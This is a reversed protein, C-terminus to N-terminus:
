SHKHPWLCKVLPNCSTWLSTSQGGQYPVYTPLYSITSQATRRQHLEPLVETLGYSSINKGCIQLNQKNQLTKTSYYKKKVWPMHNLTIFQHATSNQTEHTCLYHVSTGLQSRKTAKHFLSLPSLFKISDAQFNASNLSYILNYEDHLFACCHCMSSESLSSVSICISLFTCVKLSCHTQIHKQASYPPTFM